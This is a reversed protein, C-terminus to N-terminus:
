HEVIVCCFTTAAAEISFLGVSPPSDMNFPGIPEYPFAPGGTDFTVEDAGDMLPIVHSSFEQMPLNKSFQLWGHNQVLHPIVGIISYEVDKKIWLDEQSASDLTVVGSNPTIAGASTVSFQPTHIKKAPKKLLSMIDPWSQPYRHPVGYDFLLLMMTEENVNTDDTEGTLIESRQFEKPPFNFANHIIPNRSQRFGPVYTYQAGYSLNGKFRGGGPKTESSQYGGIFFPRGFNRLTVTDGSYTYTDPVGAKSTTGTFGNAQLAEGWNYWEHVM